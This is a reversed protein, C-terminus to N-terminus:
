LSGSMLADIEARLEDQGTGDLASFPLILKHDEIALTQALLRLQRTRASRAIKDAKTAIVLVPIGQERLMTLMTLDGDTPKHRIDLLQVAGRLNERKSFYLAMMKGWEAQTARSVKAFGYGPLDVLYWEGNVAFFNILRTKGPAKGTKALGKRQLLKNILTSKGANSRGCIAVEPLVPPPYQQPRTASTLFEAQRIIM